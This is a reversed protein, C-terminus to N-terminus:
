PLVQLMSVFVVIGILGAVVGSLIHDPASM